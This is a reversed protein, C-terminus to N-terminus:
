YAFRRGWNLIKKEFFNWSLYAFFWMLFFSAAVVGLIQLNQAHFNGKLVLGSIFGIVPYHFLYMFYSLRGWHCLIPSKFFKGFHEPDALSLLIILSCFLAMVTLGFNIIVQDYLFKYKVTFFIFIGSFIFFFGYLWGLKKKAYELLSTNKLLYALLVGLFLTDMRCPLLVYQAYWTKQFHLPNFITILVRLFPSILILGILFYPLAKQYINRIIFPLLAYFQEEVALSWTVSLYNFGFSSYLAMLFNQLFLFYAKFSFPGFLFQSTYVNKLPSNIIAFYSALLVAYLPIIRLFRKSYFVRYLKLSNRNELLIGGLLFGSIVFFLDVGAFFMSSSKVLFNVAPSRSDFFPLYHQIMVM